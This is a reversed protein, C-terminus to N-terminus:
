KQENPVPENNGLFASTTAEGEQNVGDRKFVTIFALVFIKCDL